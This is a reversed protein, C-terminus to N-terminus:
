KEGGYSAIPGRMLQEILAQQDAIKKDQANLKADCAIRESVQDARVNVVEKRLTEVVSSLSAMALKAAKQAEVQLDSQVEKRGKRHSFFGTGVIGLAGIIATVMRGLWDSGFAHGLDM